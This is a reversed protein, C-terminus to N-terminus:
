AVNVLKQLENVVASMLMRDGPLENSCALGIELASIVCKVIKVNMTDNYEQLINSDMIEMVQGPLACKVFDRLSSSDDLLEDTPRRGTFIEMLLIGFSYVDGETSVMGSMGYESSHVITLM